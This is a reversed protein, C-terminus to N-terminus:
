RVALDLSELRRVLLSPLWQGTQAAEFFETHELLHGIVIRAEMRALAAGVCFHPGRGFSIHGKGASGRDLRFGDADDFHSPDRNAAGWLLLLRSGAALHFGRLTTDRVVHRYHGRFPAEVRLVEELFVGLLDPDDRLQRQIDRRTALVWAASGHVRRRRQVVHGDHVARDDSRHRGGRM